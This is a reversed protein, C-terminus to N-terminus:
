PLARHSGCGCAQCAMLVLLPRLRKGPALLSHRIAEALEHPCDPGYQTYEALYADVQQRLSGSLGAFESRSCTVAMGPAGNLICLAYVLDNHPLPNCCIGGHRSLVGLCCRGAAM